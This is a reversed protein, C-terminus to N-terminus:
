YYKHCQSQTIAGSCLSSCLLCLFLRLAMFIISCIFARHRNIMNATSQEAFEEALAIDTFKTAALGNIVQFVTNKHNNDIIYDVAQMEKLANYNLQAYCGTVVIIVNKNMKKHEIAKRIANRSKYDTRNTVTCSNVLYVDAPQSFDVQQWGSQLFENLICITEYQNIKCGFTQQAIKM